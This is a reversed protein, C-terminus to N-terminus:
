LEYSVGGSYHDKVHRDLLKEENFMGGCIPCQSLDTEDLNAMSASEIMPAEAAKALRAEANREREGHYKYVHSHLQM